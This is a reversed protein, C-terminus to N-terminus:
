GRRSCTTRWTLGSAGRLSLVEVAEDLLVALQLLQGPPLAAEGEVGAVAAVVHPLQHPPPLRRICGNQVM